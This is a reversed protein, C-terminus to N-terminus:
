QQNGRNCILSVCSVVPKDVDFPRSKSEDALDPNGFREARILGQLSSSPARGSQPQIGFEPKRQCEDHVGEEYALAVFSRRLM